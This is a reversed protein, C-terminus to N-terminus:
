IEYVGTVVSGNFHSTRLSVWEHCVKILLAVFLVYGSTDYM